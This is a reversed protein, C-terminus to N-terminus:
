PAPPTPPPAEPAAQPVPVPKPEAQEPDPPAIDHSEALSHQLLDWPSNRTGPQVPAPPPALGVIAVVLVFVAFLLTMMDAYSILWLEQDDDPPLSLGPRVRGHQRPPGAAQKHRPARM